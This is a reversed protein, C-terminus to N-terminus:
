VVRLAWAKHALKPWVENHKDMVKASSIEVAPMRGNPGHAHAIQVPRYPGGSLAGNPYIVMQGHGTFRHYEGDDADRIIITPYVLADGPELPEGEAVFRWLDQNILADKIMSNSNIDDVVDAFREWGKPLSGRAFGPRHRKIRYADLIAGICDWPGILAEGDFTGTGLQYPFPLGVMGLMRAVADSASNHM